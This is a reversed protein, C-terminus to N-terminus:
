SLRSDTAGDLTEPVSFFEYINKCTDPLIGGHLPTNHSQRAPPAESLAREPPGGLPRGGLLIRIAGFPEVTCMMPAPMKPTVAASSSLRRPCVTASKSGPGNGCGSAAEVSMVLIIRM